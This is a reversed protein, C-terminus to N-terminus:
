SSASKVVPLGVRRVAATFRPDRRMSTWARDANLFVLGPARDIFAAEFFGFSREADGALAHARALDLPSVYAHHRARDVLADIQSRGLQHEIRRYGEEGRADAIVDDLSDDHMAAHARRHVDIAADFNRQAARAEALGFYARPDGPEDQIVKEYVAASEDVRGVYQLFDGEAVRFAPSVPDIARVRRIMDLAEGPRGLAWHLLALPRLLGPDLMVDRSQLVRRWERESQEWDWLFTFTYAALHARADVSEPMLQLARQNNRIMEPLADTPREFGDFAMLGYTGALGVFALAFNSDRKVAQELLRRATLYGEETDALWAHRARLYLEYAEADDTPRKALGRREEPSPRMRLGEDVIAGAIQDQVSLVDNDPRDYATGWLRVGSAVDVLEASIRLRGDRRAVTGTIIADAGLTRGVARPDTSHNKFNFVTSRAMVRLTSLQGIRQILSETIGDCLYEFDEDKGVNVFPLVALSRIGPGAWWIRRAALAGIATTVAAGALRLTARRTLRFGSATGGVDSVSWQTGRTWHDRIRELERALDGTTPFRDAPEKALCREVAQRLLSPVRPSLDAISTPNDRLIAALTEVDTGRRFPHQGALMEYLIIGFSFQDSAAGADRGAAQEPSMYGVTGLIIGDGTLTAPELHTHARSGGGSSRDIPQKALGLDLIKIRNEDSFMLNGPKLDRHVIEERHAKDLAHAVDVAIDLAEDIPMSAKALRAALTEGGLFEMVLFDIGDQHGVDHLTCIHPHNLAAIARAERDFRARFGPDTSVHAPLVKLAVWRNLRTDRAKYVEGMGGAGLLTEIRYPGLRSGSPLRAARIRFPDSVGEAEQDAALLAEVDARLGPDTSCADILFTERAHPPRDRAAHFLESVLKWREPDM